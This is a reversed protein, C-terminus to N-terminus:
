RKPLYKDRPDEIYERPLITYHRLRFRWAQLVLFVVLGLVWLAWFVRMSLFQIDEVRSVTLVVGIGGFWRMLPAWSKMLRKTVPNERKKRFLAIGFSGLFLLVCFGLLLLVKPNEYSTAPPRPYFWYSLLASM